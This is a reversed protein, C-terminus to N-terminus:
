DSRHEFGDAYSSNPREYSLLVTSSVITYLLYRSHAGRPLYVCCMVSLSGSSYRKYGDAVTRQFGFCGNWSCLTLAVCLWRESLMQMLSHPLQGDCVHRTFRAITQICILRPFWPAGLLQSIMEKKRRNRVIWVNEWMAKIPSDTYAAAIYLRTPSDAFSGWRCCDSVANIGDILMSPYESEATSRRTAQSM